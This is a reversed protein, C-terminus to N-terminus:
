GNHIRQLLLVLLFSCCMPPFAKPIGFSERCAAGADLTRRVCRAHLVFRGPSLIEEVSPDIEPAAGTSSASLRV